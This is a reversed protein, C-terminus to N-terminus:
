FFVHMIAAADLKHVEPSLRFLAFYWFLELVFLLFQSEDSLFFFLFFLLFAVVSTRSASCALITSNKYAYDKSGQFFAFMNGPQICLICLCTQSVCQTHDALHQIKSKNSQSLRILSNCKLIAMLAFDAVLHWQLQIICLCHLLKNSYRLLM